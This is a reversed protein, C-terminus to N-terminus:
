SNATPTICCCCFLLLLFTNCNWDDERFSYLWNYGFNWTSGGSISSVVYTWVMRTVQGIHSGHGYITFINKLVVPGIAKFSPIYCQTGLYLWFEIWIIVKPGGLNKHCHWIHFFISSCFISQGNVWSKWLTAVEFMEESAVLLSYGFNIYLCRTSLSFHESLEKLLRRRRFWHISPSSVQCKTHPM